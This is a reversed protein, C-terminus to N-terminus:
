YIRPIQRHCSHLIGRRNGRKVNRAVLQQFRKASLGIRGRTIRYRRLQFHFSTTRPPRRIKTYWLIPHIRRLGNDNTSATRGAHLGDAPQYEGIYSRGTQRHRRHHSNATKRTSESLPRSQDPRENGPRKDSSLNDCAKGPKRIVTESSQMRSFATVSTNM